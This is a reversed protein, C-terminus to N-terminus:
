NLHGTVVLATFYAMVGLITGLILLACAKGPM